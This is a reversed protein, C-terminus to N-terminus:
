LAAIAALLAGLIGGMSGVATVAGGTFPIFSSTATIGGTSAVGPVSTTAGTVAATSVSAAGTSGSAPATASGGAAATSSAPAASSSQGAASTSGGSLATTDPATSLGGSSGSGATAACACVSSAAAQAALATQINSCASIVCGQAASAIQAPKSGGCQCTFDFEGCGVGSAASSICPVKFPILLDSQGLISSQRVACSPISEAVPLCASPSGQASVAAVLAFFAAVTYKM